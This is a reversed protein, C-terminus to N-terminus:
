HRLWDLVWRWALGLAATTCVVIALVMRTSWPSPPKPRPYDPIQQAAVLRDYLHPHTLRKPRMVAPLLNVEYLRELARAYTGAETEHAQAIRDARVEMARTLRGLLRTGVLTMLVAALVGPLGFSGMVPRFAVLPLWALKGALRGFAVRRPEGLHALEHACVTVLQEDDLTDMATETVAISQSFQFAVANAMKWRLLYIHRPRISVRQTAQKVITELRQSAPRVLRCLRLLLLSGDLSVLIVLLVACGLILLVQSNMSDPLSSFTHVYIFVPLLFLILLVIWGRLWDALTIQRGYLRTEFRAAIIGAGVLASLDALPILILETDHSFPSNGFTVVIMWTVAIVLPGVMLAIRVPAVLRATESWHRSLQPAIRSFALRAGVWEALLGAPFAAAITLMGLALESSLGTAFDEPSPM